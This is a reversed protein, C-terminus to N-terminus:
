PTFRVDRAARLRGINTDCFYETNCFKYQV